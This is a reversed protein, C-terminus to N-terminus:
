CAAYMREIIEIVQKGENGSTMIEQKGLLTQVVNDIMQDHNSMSGQYLGYDNSKAQIQIDPLHVEQIHQYEITNLYQGGIKLTGKEALLTIAGEMNKEFSSTSFNFNVIAGSNKARMIFSGTDEIEIYPHNCNKINGALVDMDGFLYYLIDVFHSFQTYLCGGDKQKTGRWASQHYYHQNRNWFCNVQIFFLKGLKDSALLQKVAQVPPNYRNQKVVFIKKQAQAATDIMDQSHLSSLSMPKECIVHLGAKLAQITHPHHLFNPTCVSVVDLPTHKLFDEIKTFTKIDTDVTRLQENDIDCIATLKAETHKIIHAAHRKGIHGYGIIGFHIM